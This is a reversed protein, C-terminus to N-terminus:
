SVTRELGNDPQNCNSAKLKDLLFQVGKQIGKLTNEAVHHEKEFEGAKQGVVSATEKVKESARHKEDFEKVKEGLPRFANKIKDLLGHKENAEKAADGVRSGAEIAFDGTARAAEGAPGKDNAAVVTAGAGALIGLIPGVLLLGSLGFLLGAGVQSPVDTKTTSATENDGDDDNEESQSMKKDHEELNSPNLEHLGAYTPAGDDQGANVKEWGLDDADGTVAM